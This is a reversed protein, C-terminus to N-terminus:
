LCVEAGIGGLHELHTVSLLSIKMLHQGGAGELFQHVYHVFGQDDSGDVAQRGCIAQRFEDTVLGM